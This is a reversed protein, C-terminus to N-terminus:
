LKFGTKFMLEKAAQTQQRVEEEEKEQRRKDRANENRQPVRELEKELKIVNDGLRQLEEQMRALPQAPSNAVNWKRGAAEEALRAIQLKAQYAQWTDHSTIAQEIHDRVLTDVSALPLGNVAVFVSVRDTLTDTKVLGLLQRIQTRLKPGANWLESHENRARDYDLRRQALKTAEERIAPRLLEERAALRARAAELAAAVAQAKTLKVPKVPKEAVDSTAPSMTQNTM